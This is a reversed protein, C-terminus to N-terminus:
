QPPILGVQQMMSLQDAVYWGEVIKGDAVRFFGTSAWSAHKGTLALGMFPGNQTGQGTVYTAVMDGEAVMQVVDFHVDPFATRFMGM